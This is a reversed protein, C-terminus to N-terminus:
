HSKIYGNVIGSYTSGTPDQTTIAEAAFLQMGDIDGGTGKAVMKLNNTWTWVPPGTETMKRYGEWTGEWVGGGVPELTFKGSLPGEGTSPNLAGHASILLTGIVRPDGTAPPEPAVWQSQALMEKIIIRETPPKVIGFDLYAPNIERGTFTTLIAKGLPAQEKLVTAQDTPTVVSQSKDTCGLLAVGVCAFLIGATTLTRMLNDEKEQTTNPLNNTTHHSNALVAGRRQSTHCGIGSLGSM